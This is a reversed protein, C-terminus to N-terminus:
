VARDDRSRHAGAGTLRLCTQRMVSIRHTKRFAERSGNWSPDAFVCNLFTKLVSNTGSIPDLFPDVKIVYLSGDYYANKLCNLAENKEALAIYVLHFKARNWDAIGESRSVLFKQSGIHTLVSEKNTRILWFTLGLM